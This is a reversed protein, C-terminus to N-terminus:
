WGALRTRQRRSQGFALNLHQAEDDCAFAVALDAVFQNQAFSCDGVVKRMNEVFGAGVISRSCSGKSDAM